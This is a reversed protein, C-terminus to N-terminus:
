KQAFSYTQGAEFTGMPRSFSYGPWTIDISANEAEGLGFTQEKPDDSGIGGGSKIVQVIQCGGEPTVTISAGLCDPSTSDPCEVKVKLYRGKPATNRFVKLMGNNYAVLVEESGDSDIDKKVAGFARGTQFLAEGERAQMLAFRGGENLWFQNKGQNIKPQPTGCSKIAVTESSTQFLDSDGDLDADIMLETWGTASIDSFGFSAADERYRIGATTQEAHFVRLPYCAYNSAVYDLLGDNDLDAVGIGMADLRGNYTLGLSEAEDTFQDNEGVLARNPAASYNGFNDTMKLMDPQADGNLDICAVAAFVSGRADGNIVEPHNEFTGDAQRIFFFDEFADFSGSATQYKSLALAINDRLPVAVASWVTFGETSIGSAIEEYVAENLDGNQAYIKTDDGTVVLSPKNEGPMRVFMCGSPHAPGSPSAEAAHFVGGDNILLTRAAPIYLLSDDVCLGPGGHGLFIANDFPVFVGGAPLVEASVDEWVPHPIKFPQICPPTPIEVPYKMHGADTRMDVKGADPHSIQDTEMDIGVPTGGAEPVGCAAAFAPLLIRFVVARMQKRIRESLYVKLRAAESAFSPAVNRDYYIDSRDM